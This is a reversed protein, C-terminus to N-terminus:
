YLRLHPLIRMPDRLLNCLTGWVAAEVDKGHATHIVRTGDAEYHSCRYYRADKARIIGTMTYGCEGCKLLGGGLLYDHKSNRKSQQRNVSVQANADNWVQESVIAPCPTYDDAGPERMERRQKGDETKGVVVHKRHPARGMYTTNRIIQRITAHGWRTRGKQTPVKEDTLLKAVKITSM